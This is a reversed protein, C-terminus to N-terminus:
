DKIKKYIDNITKEPWGKKILLIRLEDKSHTKLLNKINEIAEDDNTKKKEKKLLLVINFIAAIILVMILPFPSSIFSRVSFIQKKPIEDVIEVEEAKESIVFITDEVTTKGAYRLTIKAPYEGEEIETTDFYGELPGKEWPKLARSFSKLSTIIKDGLVNYVEVDAYIEKIVDNWKSEIDIEIKNIADKRFEKTYDNIIVKLEGVRFVESLTTNNEDWFLKAEARYDGSLLTTDDLEGILEGGERSKLQSLTNTKLTGILKEKNYVEIEAHITKITETGLSSVEILFNPKEGENINNSTFKSTLYKGPYLINFIYRVGVAPVAKLVKSSTTDEKVWVRYETKGPVDVSEPLKLKVKILRSGGPEVDKYKNPTVEFSNMFDDSGEYKDFYIIFDSTYPAANTFTYEYESEKGPEFNIKNKLKSGSISLSFVSNTLIIFLFIFIFTTKKSM